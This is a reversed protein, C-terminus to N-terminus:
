GENACLTAMAQFARAAAAPDDAQAIASGVIAIDPRLPGLRRLAELTIGGAVATRLGQRKLRLLPSREGAATQASGGASEQEDKSVHVCFVADRYAALREGEEESTHLLDIIAQKGRRAAANLFAEVTVPPAAGMVTAEDAGADFCMDFEYAANDFTKLDAVIVHDPFARRVSRVGDMGFQKILSTGVEIRQVYPAAQRAIAIAREIALRDLALQINM